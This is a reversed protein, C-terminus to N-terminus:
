FGWFARQNATLAQREPATLAYNDWVLAEGIECSVSAAGWALLVSGAAAQGTVSAGAAETTDIRGLSAAGDIIAIGAHWAADSAAPLNFSNTAQDTVSWTNAAASYLLNTNNGKGIFSCSGTGSLRSGATSFSTKGAAWAVSASSLYIQAATTVRGCPKGTACSAVYAASEGGARNAHRGNGSQDYWTEIQCPTPCHANAAAVDLPAGLGPVFGLFNIDLMANDSLRRLKVAPGAYASRLLRLGYAASPSTLGDLPPEAAAVARLRHHAGLVPPGAKVAAEALAMAALLLGAILLLLRM